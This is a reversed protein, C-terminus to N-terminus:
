SLEAFRSFMSSASIAFERSEESFEYQGLMTNYRRGNYQDTFIASYFKDIMEDFTILRKGEEQTYSEDQNLM